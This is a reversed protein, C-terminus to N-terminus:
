PSNGMLFITNQFFRVNPTIGAITYFGGDQFGYNLLTPHNTEKMIAAFKYQVMDDKEWSLMYRNRNFRYTYALTVIFIILILGMLLTKSKISGYTDAYLDALIIFGFVIFPSFILFYYIYDKGGIYVGLALLLFSFLLGFRHLAHHIYKKNTVFVFMGLFILSVSVPNLYLHKRFSLLISRIIEVASLSEPYMTLNITFYTHIWDPIARNIGFYFLWPVSAILIGLLFWLSTKISQILQKNMLYCVTISIIWGLWFGLYSYKIWLVCGAIIGNILVWSQPLAHRTPNKYFRLLYYLSIMMFPLTLEEATDGHAFSRLNLVAAAMIPLMIASYKWDVFLNIIKFTFYLFLSFSIVEVIYVGLFTNNSILYALGHLFYLLPGKHEFLDRYPVAGNMM